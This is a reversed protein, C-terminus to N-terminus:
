NAIASAQNLRYYVSKSIRLGDCIKNTKGEFTKFTSKFSEVEIRKIFEPLGLQDILSTQLPTLLSDESRHEQAKFRKPLEAASIYSKSSRRLEILLSSLERYNGKWKHCRLHSLASEDFFLHRDSDKQLDFLIDELEDVRENISPIKIVSFSLRYYLDERFSGRAVAKKLDECTATVLQFDLKISRNSGVPTLEKEEIVKLIKQQTSLPLTAIEDLFLVGGHAQEFIGKRDSLAGTFAGKAHGFLESELINESYESLNKSIFSRKPYLSRVLERIIYSKGVGSEGEVLIPASAEELATFLDSVSKNFYTSRGILHSPVAEPGAKLLKLLSKMGKTQKFIHDFGLAYLRKSQTLSLSPSLGIKQIGANQAWAIHHEIEDSRGQEHSDSLFYIFVSRQSTKFNIREGLKSARIGNVELLNLLETNEGYYIVEKKM